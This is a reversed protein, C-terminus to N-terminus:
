SESKLKIQLIAVGPASTFTLPRDQDDLNHDILIEQLSIAKDGKLNKDKLMVMACKHLQKFATDTMPALLLIDKEPYYIIYAQRDNGFIAAAITAEIWLHQKRLGIQNEDSTTIAGPSQKLLDANFLKEM